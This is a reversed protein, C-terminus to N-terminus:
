CAPLTMGTRQHGSGIIKLECPTLTRDFLDKGVDRVCGGHLPERGCRRYRRVISRLCLERDAACGLMRSQADGSWRGRVGADVKRVADCVGVGDSSANIGELFENLAGSNLRVVDRFACTFEFLNKHSLAGIFGQHDTEHQSRLAFQRSQTRAQRKQSGEDGRELDDGDVNKGNVRGKNLAIFFDDDGLLRGKRHENAIDFQM